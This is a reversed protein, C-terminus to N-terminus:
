APLSLAYRKLLERIEDLSKSYDIAAVFMIMKAKDYKGQEELLRALYLMSTKFNKEM